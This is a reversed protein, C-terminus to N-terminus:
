DLKRHERTETTDEETSSKKSHVKRMGALPAEKMKILKTTGDAELHPYTYSKIDIGEKLANILPSHISGKGEFKKVELNFSLSSAEKKNESLKCLIKAGEVAQSGSLVVYGDSNKVKCDLGLKEIEKELKKIRSQHPIQEVCTLKQSLVEKQKLKETGDVSPRMVKAKYGEQEESDRVKGGTSKFQEELEHLTDQESM